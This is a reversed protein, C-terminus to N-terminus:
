ECFIRVKEDGDNIDISMETLADILSDLSNRDISSIDLNVGKAKLKEDVQAKVSDPMVSGLKVGARLLQLPISIKVGDKPGHGEPGPDVIVKLFKPRGSSSVPPSSQERHSEGISDLLKEAEAVSIKGRALMDLIKQREEPM